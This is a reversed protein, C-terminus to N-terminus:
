RLSKGLLDHLLDQEVVCGSAAKRRSITSFTRCARARRVALDDLPELDRQTPSGNNETATEQMVDDAYGEPTIQAKDPPAGAPTNRSM